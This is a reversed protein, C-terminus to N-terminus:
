YKHGKSQLKQCTQSLCTIFQSKGVCKIDYEPLASTLMAMNTKGCASPFAAAIFKEVNTKKHRISMIQCLFFNVFDKLHNTQSFINSVANLLYFVKKVLVHFIVNPKLSHNILM